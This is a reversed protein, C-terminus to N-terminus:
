SKIWRVTAILSLIYLGGALLLAQHMGDIIHSHNIMAGFLAVGTLSGIQRGTNFIGSAMGVKKVNNDYGSLAVMTASPMTIAGGTGILAMSLFLQYYPMSERINLLLLFGFAALLQGIIMVLKPGIKGTLRGAIVSGLIALLSFPVIAFGVSLVSYTKIIQFYFPLLFLIGYGCLNIIFGVAIATSFHKSTFLSLPFMPEVTLHEIILFGIFSLLFCGGSLQVLYSHWGSRGVEILVYAFLAVSLVAVVQGLFDFKIQETESKKATDAIQNILFAGMLGLPCNILFIAKWGFLTTLFAGVVPASAAAGGGVAAWLGVAKAKDKETNFSSHILSLSSPVLSAAGIGQLVRCLTLQWLSNVLACACSSFTFLILGIFYVKRAGIRDSIYGAALLFCAFTLNYGDVIWQLWFMDGDLKQQITPLAINIINIDLIVMFFGLCPTLLLMLKQM